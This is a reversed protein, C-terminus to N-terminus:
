GKDYVCNKFYESEHFVEPSKYCQFWCNMHLPVQTRAPSMDLALSAPTGAGSGGRGGDFPSRDAGRPSASQHGLKAVTMVPYPLSSRGPEGVPQEPTAAAM